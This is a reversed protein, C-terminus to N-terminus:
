RLDVPFLPVQPVIALPVETGTSPRVPFAKSEEQDRESSDSIMYVIKEAKSLGLLSLCAPCPRSTSYIVCGELSSKGLTKFAQLVSSLVTHVGPQATDASDLGAGIVNNNKVIICASAHSHRHANARSCSDLAVQMFAYDTKSLGKRWQSTQAEASKYSKVRKDAVHTAYAGIILLFM